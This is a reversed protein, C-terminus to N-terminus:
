PCATTTRPVTPVGHSAESGYTGTGCTNKGRVLYWFTQGTAPVQSDSTTAEALGSQLCTVSGAGVPLTSEFGRVVDHTTGPGAGAASSWSMTEHNAGFRLDAVEAPVTIAVGGCSGGSCADNVTCANGDDCSGQINQYVCGVSSQCFESTCPNGDNCM